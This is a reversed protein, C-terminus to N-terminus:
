IEKYFTTIVVALKTKTSNEFTVMFDTNIIVNPDENFQWSQGAPITLSNNVTLDAEGKNEISICSFKERAITKNDRVKEIKYSAFYKKNEM